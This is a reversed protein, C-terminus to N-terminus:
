FGLVKQLTEKKQRSVPLWQENNIELEWNDKRKLATIDERNVLYSAHIRIFLDCPLRSEIGQTNQLLSCNEGAQDPYQYLQECVSM